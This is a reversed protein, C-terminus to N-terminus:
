PLNKTHIYGIYFGNEVSKTVGGMRYIKCNFAASFKYLKNDPDPTPVEVFDVIEFHSDTQSGTYNSTSYTTFYWGPDNIIIEFGEQAFQSYRKTGPSFIEPIDQASAIRGAHIRIIPQDDINENGQKKFGSRVLFGTGISVNEFEPRYYSDDQVFEHSVGDITFFVKAASLINTTDFEPILQFYHKSLQGSLEDAIMLEGSCLNTSVFQGALSGGDPLDFVFSGDHIDTLGASSTFSRRKFTGANMYNLRCERIIPGSEPNEVIIKLLRTQSTSGEWTGEYRLDDPNVPEPPSAEEDCAQFVMVAVLLFNYFWISYKRTKM